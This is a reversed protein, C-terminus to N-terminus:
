AAGAQRRSRAPRAATGEGAEPINGIKIFQSCDERMQDLDEKYKRQQLMPTFGVTEKLMHGVEIVTTKAKKAKLWAPKIIGHIIEAGTMGETAKGAVEALRSEDDVTYGFQALGFKLIALRTTANKPEEVYIRLDVRGLRLLEPLDPVRNFTFVFIINCTPDSMKTLLSQITNGTTGGDGGYDKGKNLGGKDIDDLILVARLADAIQIARRFNKETEGVLGGKAAGVDLIIGIRKLRRAIFKSTVTKAVGPPGGLSIGRLHCTGDDDIYLDMREVLEEYGPPTDGVIDEKPVYTLGPVAAIAKAKEHEIVSVFADISPGIGKNRVLAFSVAEEADQATMGCLANVVAGFEADDLPRASGAEWAPELVDLAVNKLSARDPLPVVEPKLEPITSPMETTATVLVIMRRGRAGIEKDKVYSTSCANAQMIDRLLTLVLPQNKLEEDVSKLVFIVDDEAKFPLKEELGSFNAEIEEKSMVALQLANGLANTKDKAQAMSPLGTYFGAWRDHSVVLVPRPTGADQRLRKIRVGAEQVATQYRHLEDGVWWLVQRGSQWLETVRQALDGGPTPNTDSSM